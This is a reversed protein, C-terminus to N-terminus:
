RAHAIIPSRIVSSRVDIGNYRIAHTEGVAIDRVRTAARPTRGNQRASVLLPELVREFTADSYWENKLPVTPYSCFKSQQLDKDRISLTASSALARPLTM